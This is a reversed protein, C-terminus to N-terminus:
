GVMSPSNGDGQVDGGNADWSTYGNKLNSILKDLDKDNKREKNWPSSKLIKEIKNWSKKNVSDDAPQRGNIKKYWEVISKWSSEHDSKWEEDQNKKNM